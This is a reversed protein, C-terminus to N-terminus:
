RRDNRNGKNLTLLIATAFCGAAILYCSFVIADIM